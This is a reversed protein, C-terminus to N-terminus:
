ELRNIDYVSPGLGFSLFRSNQTISKQSTDINREKNVNPICSLSMSLIVRTMELWTVM